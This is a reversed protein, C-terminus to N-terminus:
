IKGRMADTYWLLQALGDAKQIMDIPTQEQFHRNKTHMWHQMASPDGGVIAYLGRYMRLLLLAMEYPKAALTAGSKLRAVTPVSVGLASALQDRKINLLAAAELVSNAVLSNDSIAAKLSM